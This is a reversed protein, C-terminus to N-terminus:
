VKGLLTNITFLKQPNHYSVVAQNQEIHEQGSFVM